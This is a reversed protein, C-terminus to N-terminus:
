RHHHSCLVALTCLDWTWQISKCVAVVEEPLHMFPERTDTGRSPVDRILADSFNIVAYLEYPLQWSVINFTEGIMDMVDLLPPNTFSIDIESFILSANALEVVGPRTFWLRLDYSETGLIASICLLEKDNIQITPDSDTLSKIRAVLNIIVLAQVCHGMMCTGQDKETRIQSTIDLGALDLFEPPLTQSADLWRHVKVWCWLGYLCMQVCYTHVTEPLPFPRQTCVKFLDRLHSVIVSKIRIDPINMWSDAQNLQLEVCLEAPLAQTLTGITQGVIHLVYPPVTDAVFSSVKSFAFSVINILQVVGPMFYQYIAAHKETGLVASLCAVEHGMFPKSKAALRNVVLSAFCRGIVRVLIDDETHIRRAIEPTILHIPFNDLAPLSGPSLLVFIIAHQKENKPLPSEITCMRLLDHLWYQHTTQFKGGSLGAHSHTQDLWPQWHLQGLPNREAPLTLLLIGFTQQVINWLDSQEKDGTRSPSIRVPPSIPIMPFPSITPPSIPFMPNFNSLTTPMPKPNTTTIPFNPKTQNKPIKESGYDFINHLVMRGHVAFLM